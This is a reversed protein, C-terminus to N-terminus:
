LHVDRKKIASAVSEIKANSIIEKFNQLRALKFGLRKGMKAMGKVQELSPRSLVYHGNHSHSSLIMVECLCCFNDHKDKLGFNFHTEINPTHVTGAAVVLIDDREMVDEAVDPPQADDIVIAGEMLDRSYILAQAANTATVVIESNIVSSISSFKSIVVTPHLLHIDIELENIKDTRHELDILQLKTFGDAALLKAVTSGISGGAGVISVNISKRDLNFLKLCHLVYERVTHATYAHGTTLSAKVKDILHLGGASLSSTYAGLGIIKVGFKESLHVADIVKKLALSKNAMMQSATMPLGIVLGHISEGSTLDKLGDVQSVVVPWARLILWNLMRTPLVRTIPYKRHVDTLNRSHVLFAFTYKSTVRKIPLKLLILDRLAHTFALLTKM